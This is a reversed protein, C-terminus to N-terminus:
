LEPAESSGKSTELSHERDQVKTTKSSPNDHLANFETTRGAADIQDMFCM